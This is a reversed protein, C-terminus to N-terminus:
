KSKNSRDNIETPEEDSVLKGETLDNAFDTPKESNMSVRISDTLNSSREKSKRSTRKTKYKFPLDM